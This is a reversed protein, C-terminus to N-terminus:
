NENRILKLIENSKQDRLKLTDAELNLRLAPETNSPRVNFWFDPYEFTLGDLESIKADSFINKLEKLKIQKDQVESNTEEISFYKQYPQLINSFPKNLESLIELVILSAILGSDARFNDQFYYHGSHEGGFIAGTKKM